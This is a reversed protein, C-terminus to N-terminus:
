TSGIEAPADYELNLMKWASLFGCRSEKVVRTAPNLRVLNGDRFVPGNEDVDAQSEMLTDFARLAVELLVRQEDGLYYRAELAEWIERAKESLDEPQKM